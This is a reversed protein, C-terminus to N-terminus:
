ESAPVGGYPRLAGGGTPWGGESAAGAALLRRELAAALLAALTSAMADAPADVESPPPPVQGDRKAPVAPKTAGISM